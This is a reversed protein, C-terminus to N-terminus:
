RRHLRLNFPDAVESSTLPSSKRLHDAYLQAIRRDTPLRGHTGDVLSGVLLELGAPAQEAGRIVRVAGAVQGRGVPMASVVRCIAADRQHRRLAKRLAAIVSPSLLEAASPDARVARAFAELLEALQECQM